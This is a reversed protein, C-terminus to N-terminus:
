GRTPLEPRYVTWVQGKRYALSLAVGVWGYLFVFLPFTAAQALAFFQVDGALASTLSVAVRFLSVFVTGCLAGTLVFGVELPARLLKAAARRLAPGLQGREEAAALPVLGFLAMFLLGVAWFLAFGAGATLGAFLTAPLVLGAIARAARLSGGLTQRGSGLQRDVVQSIFACGLGIGTMWLATSFLTLLSAGLDAVPGATYNRFYVWECLASLALAPALALAALTVHHGFQGFYLRFSNILLVRLDRFPGLPSFGPRVISM